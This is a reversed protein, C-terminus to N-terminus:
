ITRKDHILNPDNRWISKFEIMGTSTEVELLQYIWMNQFVALYNTKMRCPWKCIKTLGITSNNKWCTYILYHNLTQLFVLEFTPKIKTKCHPVNAAHVLTQIEGVAPHQKWANGTQWSNNGLGPCSTVLTSMATNDWATCPKLLCWPPHPFSIVSIHTWQGDGTHVLWARKKSDTECCFHMQQHSKWPVTSLLMAVPSMLPPTGTNGTTFNLSLGRFIDCTVITGICQSSQDIAIGETQALAVSPGSPIRWHKVFARLHTRIHIM